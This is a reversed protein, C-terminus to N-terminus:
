IWSCCCMKMRTNRSIPGHLRRCRATRSWFWLTKWPCGCSWGETRTRPWERRLCGSSPRSRPWLVWGSTSAPLGKPGRGCLRFHRLCRCCEASLTSFWTCDAWCTWSKPPLCQLCWFHCHLRLTGAVAVDVAIPLRFPCPFEVVYYSWSIHPDLVDLLSCLCRSNLDFISWYHQSLM